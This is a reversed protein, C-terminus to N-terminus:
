TAHATDEKSAQEALQRLTAPHEALLKATHRCELYMTYLMAIRRHLENAQNCDATELQEKLEAIRQRLAEAQAFYEETWKLYDM